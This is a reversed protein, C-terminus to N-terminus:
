YQNLYDICEEITPIKFSENNNGKIITICTSVSISGQETHAQKYSISKGEKESKSLIALEYLQPPTPLMINSIKILLKVIEVEGRNAAIFLATRNYIDKQNASVHLTDILYRIDQIDKFLIAYILLNTNNYDLLHGVTKTRFYNKITGKKSLDQSVSTPSDQTLKLHSLLPGNRLLATVARDRKTREDSTPNKSSQLLVNYNQLKIDPKSCFYTFLWTTIATTNNDQHM